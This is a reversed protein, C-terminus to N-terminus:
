DWEINNKILDKVRKYTFYLSYYSINTKRALEAISMGGSIIEFVTRDYWFTKELLNDMQKMADCVTIHKSEGVHITNSLSELKKRDFEETYESNFELSGVDEVNLYDVLNDINTKIIKKEKRHLDIFLARLTRYIYMHNIDDEYSIDVGKTIYTHIRIYMEQVIDEAISEKCGFSLVIRHWDDHKEAIKELTTKL